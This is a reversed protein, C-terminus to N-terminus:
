DQYVDAIVLYPECPELSLDRANRVGFQFGTSCCFEDGPHGLITQNVMMIPTSIASVKTNAYM